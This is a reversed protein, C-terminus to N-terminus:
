NFNLEFPLVTFATRSPPLYVDRKPTESSVSETGDDKDVVGLTESVKLDCSRGEHTRNPPPSKKKCKYNGLYKVCYYHSVNICERNECKKKLYYSTDFDASVYNAFLLRHLLVKRGNFFFHVCVGKSPRQKNSVYSCWICCFAPNFVSSNVNKAIREMDTYKLRNHAPVNPLQNKVLESLIEISSM